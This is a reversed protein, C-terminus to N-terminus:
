SEHNAGALDFTDGVRHLSQALHICLSKLWYESRGNMFTDMEAESLDSFCVNSWKGNRMTRFYCGDLDRQVPVDESLPTKDIYGGTDKVEDQIQSQINTKKM